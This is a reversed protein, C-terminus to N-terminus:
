RSGEGRASPALPIDGGSRSKAHAIQVTRQVTRAYSRAASTRVQHSVWAIALFSGLILLLTM